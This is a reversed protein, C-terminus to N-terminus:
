GDRRNEHLFLVVDLHNNAAAGVLALESAGDLRNEVLWQIVELHGRQAAADIAKSTGRCGVHNLFPLLRLQNNFAALDVHPYHTMFFLGKDFLYRIVDVLGFYVSHLLVIHHMCRHTHFLLDLRTIGHTAYWPALVRNIALFDEHVDPETHKDASPLRPVQLRSFRVMDSPIGDQFEVIGRLLEACRIVELAPSRPLNSPGDVSISLSIM